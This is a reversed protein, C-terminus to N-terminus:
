VSRGGGRGLARRVELMSELGLARRVVKQRGVVAVVWHEGFRWCQSSVSAEGFLRRGVSWRWSGTSDSGGVNVRGVAAVLAEGFRCCLSASSDGGGADVGVDGPHSQVLWSVHSELDRSQVTRRSWM